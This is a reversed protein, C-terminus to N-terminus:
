GISGVYIFCFLLTLLCGCVAGSVFVLRRHATKKRKKGCIGYEGGFTTNAEIIRNAESIMDSDSLGEGGSPKLVFYAEDFIGSKTDKIMIMQKRTGKLM